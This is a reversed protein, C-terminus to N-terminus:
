VLSGKGIVKWGEGGTPHRRYMMEIFTNDATLTARVAGDSYIEIINAGNVAGASIVRVRQGNFLDGDNEPLTIRRPLTLLTEFRVNAPDGLVFVYDADGKDQSLQDNVISSVTLSEAGATGGLNTFPIPFSASRRVKDFVIRGSSNALYMNVLAASPDVEVWDIKILSGADGNVLYTSAAPTMVCTDGGTTLSGAIFFGNPGVTVLANGAIAANLTMTECKISGLQFRAGAQQSWWRLNVNGGYLELTALFSNYGQMEKFITGEAMNKCDVGFRGFHNNPTASAAGTWDIALGKIGSGWEITRWSCGWPGNAGPRIKIGCYGSHFKIAGIDWNFVDAARQYICNASTLGAQDNAYSFGIGDLGFTHILGIDSDGLVLGYINDTTCNLVSVLRGDGFFSFGNVGVPIVLSASHNYIGAPLYGRLSNAVVYILWAYLAGYDNTVGDGTAGFLRANVIGDKLLLVAVDGTALTFGAGIEDITDGDTAAQAATKVVYRAGGGIGVSREVTHLVMGVSVWSAAIMEAVTAFYAHNLIGFKALLKKLVSPSQVGVFSM